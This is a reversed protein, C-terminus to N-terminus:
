FAGPYTGVGGLAARARSVNLLMTAGSELDVAGEEIGQEIRQYLRDMRELEEARLQERRDIDRQVEPSHVSPYFRLPAGPETGRREGSRGPDYTGTAGPPQGWRPDEELLKQLKPKDAPTEEIGRDQALQDEDTSDM